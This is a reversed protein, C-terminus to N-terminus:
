INDHKVFCFDMNPSYMQLLSMLRIHCEDNIKRTWFLVAKWSSFYPDHKSYTTGDLVDNWQGGVYIIPTDASVDM